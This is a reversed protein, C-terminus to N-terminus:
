DRREQNSKRVKFWKHDREAVQRMMDMMQMLRIMDRRAHKSLCYGPAHIDTILGM